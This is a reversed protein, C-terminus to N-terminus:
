IARSVFTEPDELPEKERVVPASGTEDSHAGCGPSLCSRTM